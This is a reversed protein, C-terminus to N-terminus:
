SMLHNRERLPSIVQINEKGIKHGKRMVSPSRPKMPAQEAEKKLKEIVSSQKALTM